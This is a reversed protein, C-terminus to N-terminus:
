ILLATAIIQRANEEFYAKLKENFGVVNEFDLIDKTAMTKKAAM